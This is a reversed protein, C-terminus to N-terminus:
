KATDRTLTNYNLVEPGVSKPITSSSYNFRLEDGDLEYVGEFAPKTDNLYYWTMRKPTAAPDLTWRYQAAGQLETPRDCLRMTGDDRFEHWLRYHSGDNPKWRGVIRTRDDVKAKVAKPVPAAPSLGALFLVAVLPRM